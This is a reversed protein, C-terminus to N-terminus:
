IVTPTTASFVSCSVLLRPGYLVFWLFSIYHTEIRSGMIRFREITTSSECYLKRRCSLHVRLRTWSIGTSNGKPMLTRTGHFRWGSRVDKGTIKFVNSLCLHSSRAPEYGSGLLGGLTFAELRYLLALSPLCWILDAVEPYQNAKLIPAYRSKHLLPDHSVHRAQTSHLIKEAFISRFKIWIQVNWSVM